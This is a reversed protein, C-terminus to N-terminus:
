DNRLAGVPDLRSARRAPIYSALITTVILVFAVAIFIRLDTRRVGFLMSELLRTLWFAGVGGVAIGAGALVLGQGVVMQLIEGRQAGLAIRIGIEHTRQRVAFALLGYIGIISVLVGAVGFGILVLM